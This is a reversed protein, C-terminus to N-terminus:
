PAFRLHLFIPWNKFFVYWACDSVQFKFRKMLGSILSRLRIWILFIFRHGLGLNKTICPIASTKPMQCTKPHKGAPIGSCDFDTNQRHWLRAPPHDCTPENIPPAIFPLIIKLQNIHHKGLKSNPRVYACKNGKM